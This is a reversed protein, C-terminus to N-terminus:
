YFLYEGFGCLYIQGQDTIMGTFIAGCGVSSITETQLSDIPTPKLVDQQDGLGLQGHEGCGWTYALGTRTVAVNHKFGCAIHQFVPKNMGEFEILRPLKVSM